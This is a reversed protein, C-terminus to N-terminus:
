EGVFREVKGTKIWAIIAKVVGAERGQYSHYHIGCPDGTPAGPSKSFIGETCGRDVEILVDTQAHALSSSFLAAALAFVAKRM